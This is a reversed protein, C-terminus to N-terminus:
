FDATMKPGEIVRQEWVDHMAEYAAIFVAVTVLKSYGRNLCWRDLTSSELSFTGCEIYYHRRTLPM